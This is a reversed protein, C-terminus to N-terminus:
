YFVDPNPKKRHTHSRDPSSEASHSRRHRYTQNPKYESRRSSYRSAGGFRNHVKSERAFRSLRYLEEPVTQESEKLISILKRSSNADEESLFTVSTGKNDSRGTRGIRHIYNEIDKPFDYNIVYEVGSIDLGRAAVDTAIMINCTGRKFARIVNSRQMQSKDGHIGMASVGSRRLNRELWDVTVKKEAFILIKMDQLEELKETLRKHKQKAEIVIIQQTINKNASLETSGINMFTYEGLFDEALEKVEDPWTASFMLVQKEPKTEKLIARIQPEFGMDLMRDAEDLVVYDVNRITMDGAELFDKLRGPTAIMLQPRYDYARLQRMRSEGGICCVNGIRTTKRYLQAVEQIQLALERTPTLILADPGDATRERGHTRRADRMKQIHTLAPLLFALTKGSGTQGIGVMNMGRM